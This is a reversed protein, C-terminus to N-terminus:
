DFIQKLGSWVQKPFQDPHQFDIQYKQDFPKGLVSAKVRVEAMKANKILDKLSGSISIEKIEILGKQALKLIKGATKALKNALGFTLLAADTSVKAIDVAAKAAKLGTKAFNSAFKVGNEAVKKIIKPFTIKKHAELAGLATGWAPVALMDACKIVKEFVKANDCKEKANTIKTKLSDIRVQMEKIKSAIWAGVDKMAKNEWSVLSEEEKRLTAKAEELIVRAKQVDKKANQYLEDSTVTLFKVVQNVADQKMHGKIWWSDLTKKGQFELETEFIKGLKHFVRFEIGAMPSLLIRTDSAIGLAPVEIFGDVFFEQKKWSLEFSGIPGDEGEGRKKDRGAGSIILVPNIKPVKIEEFFIGGSLGGISARAEFASKLGLMDMSGSLHFGEQYLKGFVFATKYVLLAKLDGIQFPPIVTECAKQLTASDVNVGNIKSAAAALKLVFNVIDSRGLGGTMSGDFIIDSLLTTGSFEFKCLLHLLKNGIGIDGQFAGGAIPLGTAATIAPDITLSLGLNGLDLGPIGLLNELMGETFSGIELKNTHFSMFGNFSIYDKQGPLFIDIGTLGTVTPVVFGKVLEELGISFLRDGIRLKFFKTDILNIKDSSSVSISSGALNPTPVITGRFNSESFGLHLDDCAKKLPGAFKVKSVINIGGDLYGWLPDDFQDPTLVIGFNEFEIWDLISSADALTMKKKILEEQWKKPLKDLSIKNLNEKLEPFFKHFNWVGPLGIGLTIGFDNGDDKGVYLRTQFNEMLSGFVSANQWTIEAANESYTLKPLSFVIDNLFKDFFLPVKINAFPPFTILLERLTFKKGKLGEKIFEPFKKGIKEMILITENVESQTFPSSFLEFFVLAISFYIPSKKMVVESENHNKMKM